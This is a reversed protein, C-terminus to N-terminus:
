IHVVAFQLTNIGWGWGWGRGWGRGMKKWYGVM